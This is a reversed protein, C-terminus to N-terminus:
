TRLWRATADDAPYYSEIRLEDLTIDLPTGLTTLTTFFRCEVDGCRLHVPIMLDLQASPDAAHLKKPLDPYALVRTLM